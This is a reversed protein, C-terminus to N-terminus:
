SMRRYDYFSPVLAVGLFFGVGILGLAITRVRPKMHM